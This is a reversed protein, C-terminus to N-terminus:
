IGNKKRMFDKLIEACKVPDKKIRHGWFRKVRWGRNRLLGNVTIDRIKNSIIKTKWFKINTKPERYCIPCGHWFCGDLFIAVKKQQFVYDPKGELGHGKRFGKLGTKRMCAGFVIELQTNKGRIRSMCFSRQKKTLVDAM